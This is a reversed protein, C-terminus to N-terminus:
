HGHRHHVDPGHPHSHAMPEHRHPHSHEGRPMEDHRHDHHGDDHRHAHEHDMCDHTHEHGHTETLHLWIGLVCLAGAALTSAGGTREGLGWAAVAGLFPAAAFVSGTRAAGIVRQARLYLRLSLGYGVAGCAVLAVAAGAHPWPEGAVRALV